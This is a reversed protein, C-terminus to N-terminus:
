IGRGTGQFPPNEWSFVSLLFLLATPLTHDWLGLAQSGEELRVLGRGRTRNVLQRRWLECGAVVGAALGGRLGSRALLSLGRAPGSSARAFTRSVAGLM